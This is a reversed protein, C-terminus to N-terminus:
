GLIQSMMEEVSDAHYVRGAKVDSMADRYHKTKTIDWKNYDYYDEQITNASELVMRDVLTDVQHQLWSKIAEATSLRPDILRMASDDVKISVTCM